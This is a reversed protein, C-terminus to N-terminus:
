FTQHGKTKSLSYNSSIIEGVTIWSFIGNFNDTRQGKKGKKKKPKIEWIKKRLIERVESDARKKTVKWLGCKVTYLLIQDNKKKKRVMEKEKM